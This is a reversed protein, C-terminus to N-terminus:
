RRRASKKPPKPAQPIIPAKSPDRLLEGFPAPEPEPDAPVHSALMVLDRRYQHYGALLQYDLALNAKGEEGGTSRTRSVPLYLEQLIAAAEVFAPNALLKELAGRREPDNRFAEIRKQLDTMM